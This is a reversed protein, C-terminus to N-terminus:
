GAELGVIGILCAAQDLDGPSRDGGSAVTALAKTRAAFTLQARGIDDAGKKDAPDYKQKGRRRNTDGLPEGRPRPAVPQRQMQGEDSADRLQDEAGALEEGAGEEGGIGRWSDEDASLDDVPIGARDQERDGDGLM